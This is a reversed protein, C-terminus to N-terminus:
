VPVLPNFFPLLWFFGGWFLSSFFHLTTTMQGFLHEDRKDHSCPVVPFSGIGLVTGTLRPYNHM